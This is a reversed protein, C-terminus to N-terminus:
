DVLNPRLWREAQEITWGKRRAYSELQDRGIPGVTFYRSTRHGLYWGSVAAAPDM